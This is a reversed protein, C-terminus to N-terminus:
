AGTSLAPGGTRQLQSRSVPKTGPPFGHDLVAPGAAAGRRQGRASAVLASLRSRLWAASANHARGSRHLLVGARLAGPVGEGVPGVGVGHWEGSHIGTSGGQAAGTGQSGGGTVGGQEGGCESFSYAGRLMSRDPTARDCDADVFSITSADMDFIAERHRLISAGLVTGGNGNNFIAACFHRPRPWPTPSPWALTASATPPTPPPESFSSPSAAARPAPHQPKPFEVMYHLPELTLPTDPSAQFVLQLKPLASSLQAESEFYSCLKAGPEIKPMHPRLAAVLSRHVPTSAYVFTTGSDVITPHLHSSAFGTLPEFSSENLGTAAWAGLARWARASVGAGASRAGAPAADPAPWRGHREVRIEKLRLSFLARAKREMPVTVPASAPRGHLTGDPPFIPHLPAGGLLFLGGADSLCLSFANHARQLKSLSTLWSPVRGHGARAQLGLIGDARQRQFMGTELTQCGFFVPVDLEAGAAGRMHVVDKIIRGRISSGETYHVSYSCESAVCQDCRVGAAVTESSPCHVPASTSSAAPNFRGVRGCIHEGCSKCSSCPVATLSSGTDVIVDYRRPPSGVCVETSFYGLTHLAGALRGRSSLRRGPADSTWNVPPEERWLLPSPERLRHFSLAM